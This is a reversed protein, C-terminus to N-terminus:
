LCNEFEAEKEKKNKQKDQQVNRWVDQDKVVEEDLGVEKKDMKVCDM